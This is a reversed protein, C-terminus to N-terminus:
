SALVRTPVATGAAPIRRPMLATTLKRTNM